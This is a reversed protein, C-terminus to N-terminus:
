QFQLFVIQVNIQFEQLMRVHEQPRYCSQSECPQAKEQMVVCFLGCAGFVTSFIPLFKMEGNRGGRHEPNM